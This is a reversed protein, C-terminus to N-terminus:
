WTNWDYCLSQLNILRTLVKGLVPAIISDFVEQQLTGIQLHQVHQGIPSEGDLLCQVLGETARRLKFDEQHMRSPDGYEEEFQIDSAHRYVHNQFKCTHFLQADPEYRCARSM